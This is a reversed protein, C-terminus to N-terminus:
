ECFVQKAFKGMPVVTQEEFDPNAQAFSIGDQKHGFHASYIFVIM